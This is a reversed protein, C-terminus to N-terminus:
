KVYMFLCFTFINVWINVTTIKPTLNHIVEIEKIKRHERIDEFSCTDAKCYPLFNQKLVSANTGEGM